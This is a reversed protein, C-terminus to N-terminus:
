EHDTKKSKVVEVWVKINKKETKELPSYVIENMGKVIYTDLPMRIKGQPLFNKNLSVKNSNIMFDFKEIMENNEIILDAKGCPSFFQQRIPSSMGESSMFVPRTGISIGDYYHQLIQEFTRGNKSMYGAGYQSMGVGHGLGGGVAELKILNGNEDYINNFVVNASPLAKGACTMVRRILLEKKVTWVGKETTICLEIAKGSVGRSIVEIKKIKGLDKEKEFKPTIFNSTAFKNLNQNLEKRLEEETWSRTWRFYGSENDFTQPSSTYFKRADEECKLCLTGEIDPKGKLYPLPNAPFIESSPESFANEYSETYGGATSSYLALIVDGDYLALLGTTEKVAQNSLPKETNAGFYVQSQVSDCVEFLPNIKKRPRLAYNRAAVAQAKLAELGFSVPLENPVVGRLYEELPLVNIVSLKDTKGPTKTIEVTGRYAAPKGARKLNVIQLPFNSEATIEIPGAINEAIKKDNQYVTLLNNNMEFKLVDSPDSKIVETGSAKDTAIIAADSTISTDKYALSSFDNTSIGVRILDETGSFPCSEPPQAFSKSFGVLILVTLIPIILFKPKM